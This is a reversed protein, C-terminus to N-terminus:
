ESRAGAERAPTEVILLANGLGRERKDSPSNVVRGDLWFTTSGGGDLNLAQRCGLQRMLSSLEAFSMGASLDSQRGDVAVLYFYREDFGVATRPHRPQVYDMIGKNLPWPQEVGDKVLVPGGGIAEVAGSLDSSAGTTFTVTDGRRLHVLNTRAAGRITLVMLNSKLATNGGARIEAVRARYEQGIRLPLWPNRRVRALVLEVENTACTRDGFVPTFLTAANTLPQQNLGLKTRTGDPWHLELQPYAIAIHPEGDAGFWLCKDTPSSVLEGRLIQLGGPDGQYPGPKIAFFDGNIAVLPRGLAAPFEAVQKSLPLLGRVRGDALSTLIKLERHSRDLRAVHISWPQNTERLHAYDLGPVCTTYHFKPLVIPKNTEAASSSVAVSLLLLLRFLCGELRTCIGVLFIADGRRPPTKAM